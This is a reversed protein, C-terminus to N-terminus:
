QRYRNCKEGTQHHCTDELGQFDVERIDRREQQGSKKDPRIHQSLKADGAKTKRAHLSHLFDRDQGVHSQSEDSEIDSIFEAQGVEPFGSPRGGNDANKLGQGGCQKHIDSQDQEM